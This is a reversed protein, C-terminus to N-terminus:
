LSVRACTLTHPAHEAIVKGMLAGLQVSPGERGLSLGGFACMSGALFKALLTKTSKMSLAGKIEACACDIGAGKINPIHAILEYLCLGLLVCVVLWIGLIYLHAHMLKSLNLVFDEMFDLTLRYLTILGRRM